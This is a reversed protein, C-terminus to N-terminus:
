PQVVSHAVCLAAQLYFSLACMLVVCSSASTQGNHWLSVPSCPFGAVSPLVDVLPSNVYEVDHYTVGM